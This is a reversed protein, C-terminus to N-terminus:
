YFDADFSHIIIDLEKVQLKTTSEAKLPNDLNLDADLRRSLSDSEIRMM